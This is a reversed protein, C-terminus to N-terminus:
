LEIDFFSEVSIHAINQLFIKDADSVKNFYNYEIGKPSKQTISAFVVCSALYTGLMSPHSGDFSKHLKINPKMKYANEFAIGVPIVLANNKKGADIYMKKIDEIMQPNAKEHPDVYAHIMYLAAEAGSQHIKNVVKEVESSFIKRESKTNTEGSGGQFIVLQFPKDAGINKHNLPHGINHHWSRSGSITVSKYNSTDIENPYIEELMRRVHNHLSDNYYLYSNGIYLVREPSKNKLSYSHSDSAYVLFTSFLFYILFHKM